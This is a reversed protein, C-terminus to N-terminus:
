LHSAATCDAQHSGSGAGQVRTKSPRRKAQLFRGSLWSPEADFSREMM